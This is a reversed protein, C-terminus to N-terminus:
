VGPFISPLLLLPHCLVLHNSPIVSETPMLKLLSGSNTISMSAQCACDMPDCLAPCSQTVSIFQVSGKGKYGNGEWILRDTSLRTQSEVVGHVTALWVGKDM